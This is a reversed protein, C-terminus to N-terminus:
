DAYKVDRDIQHKLNGRGKLLWLPVLLLYLFNSKILELFSEMLLDTRLLTADLDVVPPVNHDVAIQELAISMM